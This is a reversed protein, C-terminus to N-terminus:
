GVHRLSKIIDMRCAKWAPYLSVLVGLGVILLMTYVVIQPTFSTLDFSVGINAGIFNGLFESAFYGFPLGLLAGLSVLITSEELTQLFITRRSIGIARMMGIQNIREYVSMIMICALFLIGIVVAVSGIALYFVNALSTREEADRLRDAKSSIYFYSYKERLANAHDEITKSSRVSEDMTLAIFTAADRERLGVLDQLESLHLGIFATDALIDEFVGSSGDQSFSTRFIGSVTFNVGNVGLMDGKQIDNAEAFIRNIMLERTPIGGDAFPDELEQFDDIYEIAFNNIIVTKRDEGEFEKEKSPIIGAGVALKFTNTKHITLTLMMNTDTVLVPSAFAVEPASELEEALAHADSLGTWGPAQVLIDRHSDQITSMSQERFGEAISLMSLMMAASIAVAVLTMLTRGFKHFGFHHM